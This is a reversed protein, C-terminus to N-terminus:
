WVGRIVYDDLVGDVFDEPLENLTGTEVNKRYEYSTAVRRIIWTKFADPVDSAEGYGCRLTVTVAAPDRCTAPWSQGVAPWLQEPEGPLIRCAAPDLTQAQGAPDLYQVSVIAQVPTAGVLYRAQAFGAATLEVERTILARRTMREAADTATSIERRINDDQDTNFEYGWSKFEDVTVPLCTPPTTIRLM